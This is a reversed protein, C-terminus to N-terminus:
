EDIRYAYESLRQSPKFEPDYNTEVGYGPKAMAWGATPHTEFWKIYGPTNEGGFHKQAEAISLYEGSEIPHVIHKRGRQDEKYYRGYKELLGATYDRERIVKQERYKDKSEKSANKWAEIEEPTTAQREVEKGPIIAEGRVAINNEAFDTDTYKLNALNDETNHLPSNSMLSSIKKM